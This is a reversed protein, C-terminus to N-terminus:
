LVRLRLLIFEKRPGRTFLKIMGASINILSRTQEDREISDVRRFTKTLGSQLDRFFPSAGYARGTTIEVHEALVAMLKTSSGFNVDSTDLHIKPSLDTDDRYRTLRNLEFREVIFIM